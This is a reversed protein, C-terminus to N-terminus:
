FKFYIFANFETGSLFVIVVLYLALLLFAELIRCFALSKWKDGLRMKVPFVSLFIGLALIIVNWNSLFYPLHAGGLASGSFMSRLYLGADRLTDARFFVWGLMVVGLTYLHQAPRPLRQVLNGWRGRELVLFCGHWLGWLIFTWSAGHWLGTVFFVIFLNRYTKGTRNGGLPIYLYDRFWSSLSIHWRRWFEKVSRSIYPFDFNELFHFGMMRGMGIAMDSYASFDFFIQLTYATIGLWAVKWDGYGGYPFIGDAIEGLSNALVLKKAMGIVFRRIGAYADELSVRRVNIEREVDVYRVIPGAVLQPFLSIYLALNIYSKQVRTKRNYVDIVYSLIQFTYFSIGVPLPIRAFWEVPLDVSILGAASQVITAFFYSYKFFVLLGINFLVAVALWRKRLGGERSDMRITLYYNVTISVVLLFTFGVGGWSYILLSALLTWANQIRLHNNLLYYIIFFVPFVILLFTISSFAM